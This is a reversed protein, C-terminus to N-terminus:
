TTVMWAGYGVVRDKAGATDGSNRLDLTTLRWGREAAVVLLGQIALRGCAQDTGIAHPQLTEIARQTARDIDKAEDYSHYHSLDSSIVLLTRDDDWLLKILRAVDEGSCDGVVFPALTFTGLTVQLFPLHVELGHERAHATDLKRVFPLEFSREVLGRDVSVDGLPTAFADAGTAAIGTFAVYHSPGILIVRDIGGRLRTIAAYASGAIPGSFAYGAHPGIIARVPGTPRPLAQKIYQNVTARLESPHAPYFRGAVAAPRTRPLPAAEPMIRRAHPKIRRRPDASMANMSRIGDDIGIILPAMPSRKSRPNARKHIQMSIKEKKPNANPECKPLSREVNLCHGACRVM